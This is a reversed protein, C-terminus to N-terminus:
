EITFPDTDTHFGAVMIMDVLSNITRVSLMTMSRLIHTLRDRDASECMSAAVAVFQADLVSKDHLITLREQDTPRRWYHAEWIGLFGCRGCTLVVGDDPVVPVPLPGRPPQGCRPCVNEIVAM